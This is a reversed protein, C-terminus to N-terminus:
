PAAPASDGSAIVQRKDGKIAPGLGGCKPCPDPGGHRHELAASLALEERLEAVLRQVDTM